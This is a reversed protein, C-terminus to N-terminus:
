KGAALVVLGIQGRFFNVHKFANTIQLSGIPVVDCPFCMVHSANEGQSQAFHPSTWAHFTSTSFFSGGSSTAASGKAIKRCRSVGVEEFRNSESTNNRICGCERVWM